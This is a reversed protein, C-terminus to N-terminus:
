GTYLRGAKPRNRHILAAFIITEMLGAFPHAANEGVTDILDDLMGVIYGTERIEDIGVLYTPVPLSM